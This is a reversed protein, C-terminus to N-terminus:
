APAPVPDLPRVSTTLSGRDVVLMQGNGLSTWGAGWGSSSVVVADPTVRYGLRYYDPEEEKEEAGPAHCCVAYLREATILMSNLSSYQLSGAVASMAQAYAEAVPDGSDQAADLRTLVALFLRESDTDGQLLPRVQPSILPELASPPPVSGNHAFALRGDTFPHANRPLVPLGLTAWRLHLMALDAPVTHAVRRFHERRRASDPAKKVEVGDDAARAVGWGDGHKVSLDTFANLDQEGLLAALTTPVRSVYGLLRCM